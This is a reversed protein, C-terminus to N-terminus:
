LLAELAATRMVPGLRTADISKNLWLRLSAIAQQILIDLGDVTVIDAERAQKLFRTKLPRYVMEIALADPDFEIDDPLPSEDPQNLGVSTANVVVQSMPVLEKLAGPTLPSAIADVGLKSLELCLENSRRFTRNAVIVETIGARGLAYAAARAAGGAGLVLARKDRADFGQRELAAQVAFTDTNFGVLKGARNVIVNVAKIAAADGDLEDVLEAAREKHPITVNLGKIGLAKMGDLATTLRDPTVHFPLYASHKSLQALAAAHIDPSVSHSVPDGILGYLDRLATTM